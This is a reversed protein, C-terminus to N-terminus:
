PSSVGTTRLDADITKYVRGTTVHRRDKGTSTRPLNEQRVGRM